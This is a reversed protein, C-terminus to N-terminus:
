PDARDRPAGPRPIRPLRPGVVAHELSWILKRLRVIEEEAMFAVLQEYLNLTKGAIGLTADFGRMYGYDINIRILGPDVTFSDIVDTIPATLVRLTPDQVYEADSRTVENLMTMASRM